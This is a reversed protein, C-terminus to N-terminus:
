LLTKIIQLGRTLNDSFSTRIHCIDPYSSSRFNHLNYMNIAENLAELTSCVYCMIAALFTGKDLLGSIGALKENIKLVICMLSKSEQLLQFERCYSFNVKIYFVMSRQCNWSHSQNQTWYICSSKFSIQCWMYSCTCYKKRAFTCRLYSSM